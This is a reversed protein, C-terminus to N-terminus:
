IFVHIINLFFTNKLIIVIKNEDKLYSFQLYKVKYIFIYITIYTYMLFIFYKSMNYFRWRVIRTCLHYDNCLSLM